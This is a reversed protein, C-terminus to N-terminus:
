DQSKIPLDTGSLLHYYSYHGPVAAKLLVLESHIQSYSGWIVSTRETFFLGARSLLQEFEEQCFDKAKSDIHLYIDNREDDLLLLLRKLQEFKDHAIILYAHKGM